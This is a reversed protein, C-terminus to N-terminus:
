TEQSYPQIITGGQFPNPRQILIRIGRVCGDENENFRQANLLAIAYSFLWPLAPQM